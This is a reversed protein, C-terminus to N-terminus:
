VLWGPNAVLVKAEVSATLAVAVDQFRDDFDGARIAAAFRGDDVVGFESLMRDHDTASRDGSALEREVMRLANAAIRAQYSVRGDLGDRIDREIFERVAEVLEAATPRGHLGGAEPVLLEGGHASHAVGSGPLESGLLGLVDWENECARRGITALEVSRAAGGLHTAAQILCMVGWKLTGLLEWWRLEDLVIPQGGAARYATLLSEASGFGGARHSSGFRWSRVCFWGLDEVPNGLHALEWDLVAVLGVDDIMLNGTRFDGHVVRPERVPPLHLELWRFGLEFVPRPDGLFDLVGGFQAIQDPSDLTDAFGVPDMSHIAALASGAQDVVQERAVSFRDDRLLKRPISEGGVRESLVYFAGSEDGAMVITPVPVGVRRAEALLAAEVSMGGGTRVGGPRERQLIWHKPTGSVRADVSWTERSAGGTLRAMSEIEVPADLFATAAASLSRRLEDTM